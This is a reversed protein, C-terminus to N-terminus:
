STEIAITNPLLEVWTNGPALSIEDGNADRFVTIEKLGDREWTGKIRRGNRFVYAVGRGTSVVEPSPVGNADTIGSDRLRVVQVVVNKAKVQSGDSYTHAVEGHWRLWAKQGQSWRWYVDSYPSFPLHVERTKQGKPRASSYDFVPQPAGESTDAAEYLTQTSSFLNHPAPRAPDREYASQQREFNVDILRAARVASVVQPVAGSYAFVPHGYQRLIAPDSTRASRIPEIREADRCQYIVIFRTIGAEVPEEYIIDAFSLGIQPRVSPVNEVKVALAPRNPVSGKRQGTLPCVVPAPRDGGNGVGDDTLGFPAEGGLFAFAGVAGVILVVVTTIWMVLGRRSLAM